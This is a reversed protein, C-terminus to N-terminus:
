DVKAGTSRIIEGWKVSESRILRGFAEPSGGGPEIYADFLKKKVEPLALIANIEKNLRVVIERATGAPAMVGNWALAEFGPLGSEALTPIDRMPGFRRASSVAIARLKGAKVQPMLNAPASFLVQVEGSVVALVAPPGGNFPVHTLDVGAQQKLLEMSLHSSSGNGVSAYNLKGPQSKALAVLEDLNGAAVSAGVALLNPQTGTLVVPVLDKLPDYPLTSYLSPANALPGNFGVFFTYGDHAARAAEAAAVTGGAAPKNDVIIPQALTDKLHDAIVRTVIDVSSGGPAPVLFRLPRAPWAQQALIPPALFLPCLAAALALVFRIFRTMSMM